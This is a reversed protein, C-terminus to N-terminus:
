GLPSEMRSLIDQLLDGPTRELGPGRLWSLCYFGAGNQPVDRPPEGQSLIVFDRPALAALVSSLCGYVLQYAAFLRHYDLGPCSGVRQVASLGVGLVEVSPLDLAVALRLRDVGYLAAEEQTSDQIRQCLLQQDEETLLYDGRFGQALLSPLLDAPYATRSSLLGGPWGAVAWRCGTPLPHGLPAAMLGLSYQSALASWLNPAPPSGLRPPAGSTANALWGSKQARDGTLLSAWAAEDSWQGGSPLVVEGWGRGALFEPPAAAVKRPDLGEVLFVLLRPPQQRVSSGPPQGALRRQCVQLRARSEQNGLAQAQQYCVLAAGHSRQAFYHEGLLKWALANGGALNLSRALDDAAQARQGARLRALALYYHLEADLESCTLAEELLTIAAGPDPLGLAQLGKEKLEAGRARREVRRCFGALEAPWSWSARRQGALQAMRAALSTPSLTLARHPVERALQEADERELLRQYVALAQEQDDLALCALAWRQWASAAYASTAVGSIMLLEPYQGVQELSDRYRGFAERAKEWQGMRYHAGALFYYPDPHRPELAVCELAKEIAEQDRQLFTLVSLVPFYLLPYYRRDAGQRRALALSALGAELAQPMTHPNELCALALYKRALFDEPCNEVWRAIMGLRRQRKAEMIQPTENYGHHHVRIPSKTAAGKLVPREHIPGDFRLGAARRFLRPVLDLSHGGGPYYSIMEVLLCDATTSRCIERLAPATEQDLEEDADLMLIWGGGAYGLSQNRHKAFDGEWPHHFVRAGFGRAIEVTRDSSGTDVLVIEDM